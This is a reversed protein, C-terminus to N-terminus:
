AHPDLPIVLVQQDGPEHTTVHGAGDLDEVLLASGAPLDRVEGDSVEIRAWGTLFVVIQRRPATHWGPVLTGDRVTLFHVRDVSVPESQVLEPVGHEVPLVTDALEVTSFHTAGDDGTVISALRM